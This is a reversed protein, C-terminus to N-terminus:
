IIMIPGVNGDDVEVMVVVLIPLTDDVPGDAGAGVPVMPRTAPRVVALVLRAGVGDIHDPEFEDCLAGGRGFPLPLITCRAVMANALLAFPM